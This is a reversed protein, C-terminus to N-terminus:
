EDQSGNHFITRCSNEMTAKTVRAANSSLIGGESRCSRNFGALIEYADGYHGYASMSKASDIHDSGARYKVCYGKCSIPLSWAHASTSLLMFALVKM